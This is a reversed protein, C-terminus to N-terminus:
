ANIDVHQGLFLLDIQVRPFRPGLRAERRRIFSQRNRCVPFPPFLAIPKVNPVASRVKKVDSDTVSPWGSWIESATNSATSAASGSPRTAQSVAAVVPRTM